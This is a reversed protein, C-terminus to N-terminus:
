HRQKGRIRYATVSRKLSLLHHHQQHHHDITARNLALETRTCAVTDATTATTMEPTTIKNVYVLEFLLSKTNIHNIETPM